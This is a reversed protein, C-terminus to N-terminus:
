SVLLKAKSGFAPALARWVGPVPVQVGGDVVSAAPFSRGQSIALALAEELADQMTEALENESEASTCVEPFDPFSISIGDDARTVLAPYSEPCHM